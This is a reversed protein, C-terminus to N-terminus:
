DRSNHASGCQQSTCQPQLMRHWSFYCLQRRTQQVVAFVTVAVVVVVWHLRCCSSSWHLFIFGGNRVKGCGSKGALLIQSHEHLATELATSHEPFNIFTQMRSKCFALHEFREQQWEDVFLGMGPFDEDILHLLDFKVMNALDEPNNYERLIIGEAALRQMLALLKPVDEPPSVFNSRESAAISDVYAPNRRYVLARRESAPLKFIGAIMELVTISVDKGESLVWSYADKSDTMDRRLLDVAKLLDGYDPIWGYREGLMAVIYRCSACQVPRCLVM